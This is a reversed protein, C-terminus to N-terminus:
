RRMRSNQLNHSVRDLTGVLDSVAPGALAVMLVPMFFALMVMTLLVSKKGMQERAHALRAECIDIALRQLPQSLEGGQLLNQKLLGAFDRGESIAMRLALRDLAREYPTGDETEAIYRKLLDACVPAVRDIQSAVHQLAQDVSVGSNLVMLVLDLVYPLERRIARRRTEMKSKLLILCGRYVAAGFAFALAADKASVGGHRLWAPGAIAVAAALALLLRAAVFLYPASPHHFGAQLFLVPLDGLPQRGAIRRGLGAVIDKGTRQLGPTAAAPMQVHFRNSVLRVTLFDKLGDLLLLGAAALCGIALLWSWGM